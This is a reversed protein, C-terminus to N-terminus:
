RGLTGTPEPQLDELRGMRALAPFARISALAIGVTAVGGAVVTTVTARTRGSRTYASRRRRGATGETGSGAVALAGM